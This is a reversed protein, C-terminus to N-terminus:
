TEERSVCLSHLPLMQRRDPTTNYPTLTVRGDGAAPSANHGCAPHPKSEAFATCVCMHLAVTQCLENYILVDCRLSRKLSEKVKVRTEEWSIVQYKMVPWERWIEIQSIGPQNEPWYQNWNFNDNSLAAAFRLKYKILMVM